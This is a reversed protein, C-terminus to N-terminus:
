QQKQQTPPPPPPAQQDEVAASTPPPPQLPTPISSATATAAQTPQPRLQPSQFTAQSAQHFPTSALWTAAPNSSNNNINTNNAPVVGPGGPQNPWPCLNALAAVANAMLSQQQQQQSPGSSAGLGGSLGQSWFSNQHQLSQLTQPWASGGGVTPEQLTQQHQQHQQQQQLLLTVFAQNAAAAVPNFVNQAAGVSQSTVDTTTTVVGPPNSVGQPRRREAGIPTPQPHPTTSQAEQQQRQPLSPYVRGVSSFAYNSCGGGGSPLTSGPGPYTAHGSGSTGLYLSQDLPLQSSSMGLNLSQHHHQPHQQQQLFAQQSKTQLNGSPQQVMQQAGNVPNLRSSLFANSPNNNNSNSISSTSNAGNFLAYDRQAFVSNSGGVRNPNSANSFAAAMFSDAATTSSVPGNPKCVASGGGGRGLQSQQSLRYSSQLHPPFGNDEMMAANLVSEFNRVGLNQLLNAYNSNANVGSGPATSPNAGRGGLYDYSSSFSADNGGVTGFNSWMGNPNVDFQNLSTSAPQLMSQQSTPFLAELNEVTVLPQPLPNLSGSTNSPHSPFLSDSGGSGSGGGGGFAVTTTPNVRKMAAPGALSTTVGSTTSSITTSTVGAHRNASRESGPARAFPRSSGIPAPQPRSVPLSKSIQLASADGSGPIATSESPKRPKNDMLGGISGCGGPAAAGASSASAALPPSSTSASLSASADTQLTPLSLKRPPAPVSETAKNAVATSTSVICASTTSLPPFSQEDLLSIPATSFISTNKPCESLAAITVSLLSVPNSQAPPQQQASPSLTSTSSKIRNKSDKSAASQQQQLQQQPSSVAGAAAVSAFNCRQTTKSTGWSTSQSAVIKSINSNNSTSAKIALNPNTVKAMMLPQPPPLSQLPIAKTTSSIVGGLGMKRSASAVGGVGRSAGNSPTSFSSNTGMKTTTKARAIVENGALVGSLLDQIMQYTRHVIEGPGKLYVMRETVEDGRASEIDIQIGSMSRLASVVAGGQGIIKGIDHKSVSIAIKRKASGGSGSSGSTRWDSGSFTDTQSVVSTPVRHSRNSSTPQAVLWDNGATSDSSHDFASADWLVSDGVEAEAATISATPSMAAELTQQTAISKTRQSQQQQQQQSQRKSRNKERKAETFNSQSPMSKSTDLEKQSPQEATQAQPTQHKNKKKSSAPEFKRQQQQESSVPPAEAANNSSLSLKNQDPREVPISEEEEPIIEAQKASSQEETLKASPINKLAVESAAAAAAAAAKEKAAEAAAAAEQKARRKNRKRERKRAQMAEKNAREEEEQEIQELLVSANKRAEGEQKEKAASIIKRCQQCREALEDFNANITDRLIFSARVLPPSVSSVPVAEIGFLVGVNQQLCDNGGGSNSQSTTMTLSAQPFLSLHDLKSSLPYLLESPPKKATAASLRHTLMAGRAHLPHHFDLLKASGGQERSPQFAIVVNNQRFHCSYCHKDHAVVKIHRQCDKDSPFQTVHQVLLSVVKVHGKRFAAMLCSVKRNDQSNVDAKASILREVVELHGGNCALWLSTAGKKNRAEVIAGHKLLLEVFETKGKDAAITLATDRSSLVPLSNVDAGHELLICGVKVHNGSAAEMLPTLGTKARHEINANREVLLKVVEHQGQFCALTLATNRNTEIQANIDSGHELLVRVADTYGNMSALMLPSIGLKSGTRSNIEAGHRLLLQIVDVFGGSAALSLPTYDSFNRHEKNAGRNLLDEAIDLRGHSCAISLATDKTRDVQAEIDVGYDLLLTVIARQSSYVATHLPTHSKKDRHEKDAGRELLLRALDVFGGSCALTLASENSSETCANIDVQPASATAPPLVNTPPPPPPPPPPSPQTGVTSASAPCSMLQDYLAPDISEAVSKASTALPPPAIAVAGPPQQRLAVELPCVGGQQQYYVGATPPTVVSHVDILQTSSSLISSSSGSSSSTSGSSRTSTVGRGAAAGSSSSTSSSCSTTTSTFTTTTTPSSTKTPPPPPPPAFVDMLDGSGACKMLRQQNTFAGTAVASSESGGSSARNIAASVSGSARVAGANNVPCAMVSGLRHLFETSDGKWEHFLAMLRSSFEDTCPIHPLDALSDVAAEDGVVTKSAAAKDGVKIQLKQTKELAPCVHTDGCVQLSAAQQQTRSAAGDAWGAAYANALAEKLQPNPAPLPQMGGRHQQQHMAVAAAAAAHHHMVATAAEMPISGPAGNQLQQLPQQLPPPPPPQHLSQPTPAPTATLAMTLSLPYDIILRAVTPSGSRACEIVMTCGDRLEHTPDAGNRLLYEVVQAHGGNCALSLATADNQTTTQNVPFGCEVLLQVVDLHGARAAKMLPTKAGEIVVPQNPGAGWNILEKCVKLHGNEAAYHLATDGSTTMAHLNAGQHLLRRVLELHGEQAAEMLATSCGNSGVEIDAGAKLLMECIEVFGGCAALTLATEQTEETKANVDAGAALLVAVTDEHGERAAEMLPTYGEDNVEEIDAEYGILLHVLETHGGCAALTLPSEFSDQPINVNAGHDLLLRAVEVHGEMAAEMLATHMEDTRHEHSAGADLLFKVMEAHGKYSALTLASEKFETSHTNINAGHEILCRAVEIHGNSTAEMLPTHGNENQEELPSGHRLLLKVCTLHGNAAAYHLATYGAATTQEVSARYKLLVEMVQEFGEKAAEILPTSEPKEEDVNPDAGRQLLLEVTAVSNNSVARSLNITGDGVVETSDCESALFKRVSDDGSKLYAQILSYTRANDDSMAPLILEKNLDRWVTADTIRRGDKLLMNKIPANQLFRCLNLKTEPCLDTINEDFQVNPM